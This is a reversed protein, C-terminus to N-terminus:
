DYEWYYDCGERKCYCAMGSTSYVLNHKGKRCLLQLLTAM